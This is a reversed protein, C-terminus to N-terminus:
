PPEPTDNVGKRRGYRGVSFATGVLLVALLPLLAVRGALGASLLFCAGAGCSIMVGSLELCTVSAHSYGYATMRQYWHTRHPRYWKEGRLARRLLTGTTDLIFNCFPFVFLLFPIETGAGAVVSQIGYFAGLFASGADGMFVRAPHWNFVLFGAAASAILLNAAAWAPEGHLAFVGSFFISALLAEGGALGDIGDMFNYLNLMWVVWLVSAPFWAWVPVSISGIRVALSIPVVFALVAAAGTLQVFFRFRPSLDSLDDRFGLLFMSVAFLLCGALGIGPRSGGSQCAMWVSFCSLAAVVMPVGGMRPTPVSHSSRENPVDMMGVRHMLRISFWVGAASLVASAFALAFTLIGITHM